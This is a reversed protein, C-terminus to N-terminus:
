AAEISQAIIAAVEHRRAPAVAELIALAHAVAGPARTRIEELATAEISQRTDLLCTDPLPQGALWRDVIRRVGKRENALYRRTVELSPSHTKILAIIREARETNQRRTNEAKARSEAKAREIQEQTRADRLITRAEAELKGATHQPSHPKTTGQPAPRHSTSRAPAKSTRATVNGALRLRDVNGANTREELIARLKRQEAKTLKGANTRQRVRPTMTVPEANTRPDSANTM